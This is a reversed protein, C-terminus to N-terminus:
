KNPFFIWFSSMKSLFTLSTGIIYLYVNESLKTLEILLEYIEIKKYIKITFITGIDFNWVM